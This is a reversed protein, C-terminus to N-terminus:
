TVNVKLTKFQFSKTLVKFAGDLGEKIELLIYIYLCILFFCVNLTM